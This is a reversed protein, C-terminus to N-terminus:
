GTVTNSRRRNKVSNAPAAAAPAENMSDTEAAASGPVDTPDDM